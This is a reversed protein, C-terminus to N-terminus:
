PVVALASGRHGGGPSSCTGRCGGASPVVEFAGGGFAGGSAGGGRGACGCGM